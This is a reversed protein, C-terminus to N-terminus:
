FAKGISLKGVVGDLSEMTIKQSGSSSTLSASDFESYQGEVRFFMGNDLVKDMGVAMMTGDVSTNGYSSGTGLSEKTNLDVSLSGAKFFFSDLIRVGAYFNTLNEFEVSVKNTVDTSTDSTTKDGVTTSAEETDISGPMYDVGVFVPGFGVEAFVSGYVLGLYESQTQSEDFDTTTGHSGTDLETATAAYLAANGTVGLRAGVDASASAFWFMSIVLGILTKKM